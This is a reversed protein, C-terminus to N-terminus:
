TSIVMGWETGNLSARTWEQSDAPNVTLQEILMSYSAQIAYDTSNDYDTSGVRVSATIRRQGTGSGSKVSVIRQVGYIKGAGPLQTFTYSDRDGQNASYVYSTNGDLITEGVAQYNTNAGANIFAAYQGQGTPYLCKVQVNGLFSNDDGSGTGDCIYLDDLYVSKSDDGCFYVINASANGTVQTDANGLAVRGQPRIDGYDLALPGVEDSTLVTASNVHVEYAGTTNNITAQFEIYYWKNATIVGASSTGLVTGDGRVVSLSGNANARVYVQRNVSSDYLAVITGNNTGPTLSTTKYAVGVTWTPQSDLIKYIVSSANSLLVGNTGRGHGGVTAGTANDWKQQLDSTSYHDFSDSFRFM